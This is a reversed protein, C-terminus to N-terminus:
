VVYVSIVGIGLSHGSYRQCQGASTPAKQERRYDYVECPGDLLRATDASVTERPACVATAGHTRPM